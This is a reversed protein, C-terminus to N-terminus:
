GKMNPRDRRSRKGKRYFQEDLRQLEQAGLLDHFYSYIDSDDQSLSEKEDIYAKLKDRTDAILKELEEVRKRASRMKFYVVSVTLELLDLNAQKLRDPMEEILEDIKIVRDNIKKIEQECSQMEKKANIDNEEFVKSTLQIIKDMNRKKLAAAEKKEAILRSEEKLLGRLNEESREIAPTKEASQFLNNWREDLILLSIDNKRLTRKDFNM